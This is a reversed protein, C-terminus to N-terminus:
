LSCHLSQRSYRRVDLSLPVLDRVNVGFSTLDGMRQSRDSIIRISDAQFHRLIQACIGALLLRRHASPWLALFPDAQSFSASRALLHERTPVCIIIGNGANQILDLSARFSGQLDQLLPAASAPVPEIRVLPAAKNLPGTGGSVFVICADFIESTFQICNWAGPHTALPVMPLAFVHTESLLRYKVLESVHIMRFCHSRAFHAIPFISRLPHGNCDLVKCLLGSSNLGALHALDVIMEAHGPRSLVGYKLTRLPVLSELGNKQDNRFSAGLIFNNRLTEPLKTEHLKRQPQALCMLGGSISAMRSITGMSVRDSAAILHAESHNGEGDVAVVVRGRQLEELAEPVTCGTDHLDDMTM